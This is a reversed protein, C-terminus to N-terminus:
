PHSVREVPVNWDVSFGSRCRPCAVHYAFEGTVHLEAGCEPCTFTLDINTGKWQFSATPKGEGLSTWNYFTHNSARPPDWLEADVACFSEYSDAFEAVLVSFPYLGNRPSSKVMRVANGIRWRADSPGDYAGYREPQEGVIGPTGGCLHRCPTDHDHIDLCGHTAPGLTGHFVTDGPAPTLRGMM